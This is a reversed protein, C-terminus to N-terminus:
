ADVVYVKYDQQKVARQADFLTNLAIILEARRQTDSELRPFTQQWDRARLAKLTNTISTLTARAANTAPFLTHTHGGLLRIVNDYTSRRHQNADIL